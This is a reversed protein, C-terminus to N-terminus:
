MIAFFGARRTLLARWTGRKAAESVFVKHDVCTTDAFVVHVVPSRPVARIPPRREAVRGIASATPHRTRPSALWPPRHVHIGKLRSGSPGRLGKAKISSPWVAYCPLLPRGRAWPPRLPISAGDGLVMSPRCSLSADGVFYSVHGAQGVSDSPGPDSEHSESAQSSM